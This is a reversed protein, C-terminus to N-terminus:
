NAVTGLQSFKTCCHLNIVKAVLCTLPSWIYRVPYISQLNPYHRTKLIYSQSCFVLDYNPTPSCLQINFLICKDAFLLHISQTSNSSYHERILYIFMKCSRPVNLHPCYCNCCSVYEIIWQSGQRSGYEM